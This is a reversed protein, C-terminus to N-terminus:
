LESAPWRRGALPARPRARRPACPRTRRPRGQLQQLTQWRGASCLQHRHHGAVHWAVVWGRGAM